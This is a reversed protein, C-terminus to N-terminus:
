IEATKITQDIQETKDTEDVKETIDVKYVKAMVKYFFQLLPGAFIVMLLTGVDIYALLDSFILGAVFLTVISIAEVIIKAARLSVKFRTKISLMLVEVMSTPYKSLLFHALAFAITCMSIAFLVGRIALNESITIHEFLKRWLDISTYIIVITVVSGLKPLQWVLCISMLYLLVHLLIGFTRLSISPIHDSLLAVFGDWGSSGVNAELNLAVGLGLIIAGLMHLILRKKNTLIYNKFLSIKSM